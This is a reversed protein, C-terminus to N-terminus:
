RPVTCDLCGYVALRLRISIITYKTVSSTAARHMVRVGRGLVGVLLWDWCVV